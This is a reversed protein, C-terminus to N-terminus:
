FMKEVKCWKGVPRKKCFYSFKTQCLADNWNTLLQNHENRLQICAGDGSPEGGGYWKNWSTFSFESKDVWVWKTSDGDALRGGIWAGHVPKSDALSVVFNMEKMSHVSILFSDLEACKDKASDWSITSLFINYCSGEHM